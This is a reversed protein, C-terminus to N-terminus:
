IEEGQGLLNQLAVSELNLFPDDRPPYLDGLDAFRHKLYCELHSMIGYAGPETLQFETNEFVQSGALTNLDEALDPVGEFYNSVELSHTAAFRGLPQSNEVKTLNNDIWSKLMPLM